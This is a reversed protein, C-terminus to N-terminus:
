WGGRRLWAMFGVLSTFAGILGCIFWGSTLISIAKAILAPLLPLIPELAKYIVAFLAFGLLMVGVFILLRKM